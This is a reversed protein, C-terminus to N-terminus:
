NNYYDFCADVTYRIPTLSGDLKTAISDVFNTCRTRTQFNKLNLNFCTIIAEDRTAFAIDRPVRPEAAIRSAIKLCDEPYLYREENNYAEFCAKTQDYLNSPSILREATHICDMAKNYLQYKNEPKEKKHWWFAHGNSSVCILAILFFNKM